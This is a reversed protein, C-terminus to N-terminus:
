DNNDGVLKIPLPMVTATPGFNDQFWTMSEAETKWTGYLEAIGRTADEIRLMWGIRMRKM